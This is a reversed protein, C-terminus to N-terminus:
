GHHNGKARQNDFKNKLKKWLGQKEARAVVVTINDKGGRENALDILRKCTDVSSLSQSLEQRIDGDDAMGSLGDTCLLLIDGNFLPYEDLDVEVEPSVGLARTLINKVDSQEAQKQTMLGKAVQEAVLSHDRTIQKLQGDRFLYLRSDGVHAVAVSDKGVLAAVFTTGMGNKEAREQGSSHVIENAMRVAAGLLNARDSLHIQREGVSPIKGTKLGQVVQERVVDVAMQSAVEGALHGGMGDAVILLGIEADVWYNDENNSRVKGPDTLGAASLKMRTEQM